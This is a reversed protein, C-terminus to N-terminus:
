LSSSMLITEGDFRAIVTAGQSQIERVAQRSTEAAVGRSLEEVVIVKYGLGLADLVTAKVCYDTAIGYVIVEGIDWKQLLNHLPTHNEGDDKFGSYSDYEIKTGKKVIVDTLGKDILLKAGETDQVCHPPWLVQEKGGITIVEYVEKGKHNTYFSMHRQPHWDQTAFIPLGCDKLRKTAELVMTIYDQDTGPVALPGNKFETFDGQLDVVVAATKM